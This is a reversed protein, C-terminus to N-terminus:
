SEFASPYHRVIPRGGSPWVITVADLRIPRGRYRPDGELRAASRLMARRKSEDLAAEPAPWAAARTKVEVLVVTRRDPALAVLDIEDRGLALNRRLIRYGRRRLWRAALREGRRGTEARGDGRTGRFLRLM